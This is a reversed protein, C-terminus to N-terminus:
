RRWAHFKELFQLLKQPAHNKRWNGAVYKNAEGLTPYIHIAGLIKNLGLGHNMALVFEAILDGAHTGVITAGLIKDKNPVTLVKVFGEAESDAIARDLDNIRYVTTEYPINKERADKENLGVRAVEPDTFTCWPIVRYDVRFQKFPRFLANVSAYWAQHSATHTFQYPGAVDGCVFINPFNTRMYNDHAITGDKAIDVGLEELGFGKADAKRGVAVIVKDFPIRVNKGEYECILIKEGNEVHFEKARHGTLVDVSDKKFRDTMHAVVEEDERQLLQPLMEVQSVQSGLRAFSQTMECGIPGGGLVILRNPLERIEWLTNSTLYDVQDIGKIPPVFPSAGSALIINKATITQDNLQIRYPDIIRAEGTFCEVGLSEYREASDHPEVKKIIGQVREMIQKFDFDVTTQNLGFEKSRKAYSLMKTTRILAKSPVCGTNLCDGGMKHKEILAVKAKVAAAIYSAVLGASGAGIVAINYDFTKPPKYKKLVKKTKVM